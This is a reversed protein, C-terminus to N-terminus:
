IEGLRALILFILSLSHLLQVPLPHPSYGPFKEAGASVSRGAMETRLAASEGDAQREVVERSRLLVDGM